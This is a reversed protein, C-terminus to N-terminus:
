SKVKDELPPISIAIILGIIGLFFGLLYFLRPSRNKIPSITYCLYGFNLCYIVVCVVFLGVFIGSTPEDFYNFSGFIFCLLCFVLFAVLTILIFVLWGKWRKETQTMWDGFFFGGFYLFKTMYDHQFNPWKNWLWLYFIIGGACYVMGLLLLVRFLQM